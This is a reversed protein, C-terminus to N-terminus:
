FDCKREKLEETSFVHRQMRSSCEKKIDTCLPLSQGYKRLRAEATEARYRFDSGEDECVKLRIAMALNIVGSIALGVILVTITLECM